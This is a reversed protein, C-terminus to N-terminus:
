EEKTVVKMAPGDSVAYDAPVEFLSHDPESRNIQTLRYVTEGMRPDSHKTLVAVKLEQSYWRESVIELARDNGIQGAPITTTTRTGEAQIGEITMTGLQEVKPPPPLAGNSVTSSTYYLDPPGGGPTIVGGTVTIGNAIRTSGGGGSLVKRQISAPAPMKHATHSTTDLTYSTGAVPDSIFVTQPGQARTESAGLVPLSMERRERGDSDRYLMSTSKHGIHSGDALTQTTETIAQASYPSGTVPNGGMVEGSVFQVTSGALPGAQSMMIRVQPGAPDPLDQAQLMPMVALIATTTFRM